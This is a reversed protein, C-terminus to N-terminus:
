VTVTVEVVSDSDSQMLHLFPLDEIKGRQKVSFNKRHLFSLGKFMNASEALRKEVQGLAEQLM